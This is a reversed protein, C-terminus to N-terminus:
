RKDDKPKGGWGRGGEWNLIKLFVVAHRRTGVMENKKRKLRLNLLLVYMTKHINDM